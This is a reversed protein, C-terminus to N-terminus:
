SLSKSLNTLVDERLSFAQSAEDILTDLKALASDVGENATVNQDLTNLAEDFKDAYRILAEDFSYLRELEESGVKIAEGFGSYGPAAAKVRDRLTQFKILENQMKGMSSLGGNDLVRKQISIYRNIRQTLLDAIHDRVMRDATRRAAKDMYGSFGPMRAMLNELSGREGVIQNYLDSM